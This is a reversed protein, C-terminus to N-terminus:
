VYELERQGPLREEAFLPMVLQGFREAERAHPYGSLCFSTCGADIFRRLTAAVQQPDGVVAVGAGERVTAIGSWLHDDIMHNEARALEKMRDNARSQDGSAQRAARLEPTADAILDHAAAWAEEETERVIVQLRMGYRLTRGQAAARSDMEQVREAIADPTDGWFLHVDAHAACLQKAAESLGGLYLPPYPKQLPKPKVLIGNARFFKGEFDFPEDETWARKMVDLAEGFLEYREDHGYFSGDAELEASTGGAILNVRVRGGSLQDFTSLMKAMVTPAVFGPRAAVLPAIRTTRAAIMACTIYADWCNTQVPVLLYEFGADEAKQAVDSFLEMGPEIEADPRGFATTDGWTPIFWGFEITM